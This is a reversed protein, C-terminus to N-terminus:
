SKKALVSLSVTVTNSLVASNEGIGFDLRNIEFEGTFLYGGNQKEVQFPFTIAKTMGHMTLNASLFYYGDTTKNTKEVKTSEITIEPFKEIDFYEEGRLHKDRSENDTDITATRISVNFRCAALNTTFFYIDGKLGTLQGGTKIGFNKIVFHVKSGQDVPTYKQAQTTATIFLFFYLFYKLKM